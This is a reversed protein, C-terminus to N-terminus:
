AAERVYEIYEDSTPFYLKSGDPLYGVYGDATYYGKPTFM